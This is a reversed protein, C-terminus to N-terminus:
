EGMAGPFKEEVRKLFEDFSHFSETQEDEYNSEDLVDDGALHFSHILFLGDKYTLWITIDISESKWYRLQVEKGNKLRKFLKKRDMPNNKLRPLV